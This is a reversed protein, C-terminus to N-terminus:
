AERIRGLLRARAISYARLGAARLFRLVSAPPRAKVARALSRAEFALRERRSAGPLRYRLFVRRYPIFPHQSYGAWHILSAPKGTNGVRADRVVVRGAEERLRMVAAAAVRDSVLANADVVVASKHDVLYNAASQDMNDVFGARVCRPLGALTQLDGPELFGRRSLFMGANFGVSGAELMADRLAGEVYVQEVDSAFYMFDARAAEFADFYPEVSDLVVVDSDLFLFTEFTSWAAFKRFGKAAGARDPWYSRGVVDIPGLSDTYLKHGYKRLTAEVKVTEADYPIVLLPLQPSHTRLSECLALLWDNVGDSALCVLGRQSSVQV